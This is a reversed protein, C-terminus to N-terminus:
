FLKNLISPQNRILNREASDIVTQFIKNHINPAQQNINLATWYRFSFSVSTKIIENNTGYNLDTATITKPFAEHIKLGFRRKDQKDLLYIDIDAVYDKYYGINWTEENFAQRQWNEFFVREDLGSSGNFVINIDEAFTVGEVIERTPGYINSDTMTSLNRGPLSISDCRLSISRIDSKRERGAHINTQFGSNPPLARKSPANILIEFRNPQAYGNNSHFGALVDNLLGYAGAEIFHPIQAM